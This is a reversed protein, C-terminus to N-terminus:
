DRWVGPLDTDAAWESVSCKEDAGGLLMLTRPTTESDEKAQCFRQMKEREEVVQLRRQINARRRQVDAVVEPAEPSLPVQGHFNVVKSIM